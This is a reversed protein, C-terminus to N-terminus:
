HCINEEIFILETKNIRILPNSKVVNPEIYEPVYAMNLDTYGTTAYTQYNRLSCLGLYEARQQYTLNYPNQTVVQPNLIFNDGNLVDHGTNDAIYDEFLKVMVESNGLALLYLAEYNFFKM